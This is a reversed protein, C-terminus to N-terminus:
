QLLREARFAVDLTLDKEVLDNATAGQDRGGHGPDLVVMPLGPNLAAAMRADSGPDDAPAILFTLCGALTMLGVTPTIHDMSLLKGLKSRVCVRPIPPITVPKDPVPERKRAPKATYLPKAAETPRVREVPEARKVPE